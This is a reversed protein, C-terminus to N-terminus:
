RAENALVLTAAAQFMGGLGHVLSTTVGEVQAAATGRLQRVSEQLAFVGYMGSHTYSLGGGSTNVPLPGGPATNREAVFAGAEGRQLFGLDELAYLPLHALADYLMAHDIDGPGLGAEAFADSGARRYADSTTLDPMQSVMASGTAEGAGLLYVPRQPFDRAREASTLVLAGGGDTVPCCMLRTLPDAIMPAALVQEVDILERFRARPNRSAWERQVVAVMALQERTLGFDRMYRRVGLSLLTMPGMTGFPLEFQGQLSDPAPRFIAGVGVHSRGSEGHTILVTDCHGAAIAAAAHRVQVLFSCGGVMTADVWRAQIGLLHAVQVPLYPQLGAAAIGDIDSPALGCDLLANRAADIHLGLASVDPIRGLRTTEAAGVVAIQGSKV